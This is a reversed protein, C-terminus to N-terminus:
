SQNLPICDLYPLADALESGVSWNDLHYIHEIFDPNLAVNDDSDNILIESLPRPWNVSVTSNHCTRYTSFDKEWEM